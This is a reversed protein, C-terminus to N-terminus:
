QTINENDIDDNGEKWESYPHLALHSNLYRIDGSVERGIWEPLVIPTSLSPLEVEAMILGENHDEFFDIEWKRDGVSVVHRQKVVSLYPSSALMEIGDEVPIPYEFETRMSINDHKNQKITLYAETEDIIRIRVSMEQSSALYGQTIHLVRDSDPLDVGPRLLFKREIEIAM